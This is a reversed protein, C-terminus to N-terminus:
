SAIPLLEHVNDWPQSMLCVQITCQDYETYQSYYLDVHILWERLKKLLSVLEFSGSQRRNMSLASTSEVLWPETPTGTIDALFTSLSGRQVVGLSSLYSSSRKKCESKFKLFITSIPPAEILRASACAIITLMIIHGLIAHMHM